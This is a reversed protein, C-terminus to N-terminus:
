NRGLELILNTIIQAAEPKALAQSAKKMKETLKQNYLIQKITQKLIPPHLKKQIIVRAAGEKELFLANKLQHQNTAFPYPVLICPLGRATIESITTAGARSVVLDSAALAYHIRTLYSFIKGKIKIRRLKERVWNYDKEGTILIFQTKEEEKEEQLLYLTDVVIKNLYHAGQSGGLFLLTFKNEELNLKKISQERSSNIVEERVPNGTIVAKKRGGRPLYEVSKPFSLGIRSVFPLLAKNTLSPYVNQECIITPIGFPLALLVVPCSHFSGMGVVVDPKFGWIYKVSQAFSFATQFTFNLWKLSFSRPLPLFNISKFQVGEKGVIEKELEKRGGIWLISTAPVKKKLNRILAVAPYLHGGTGGAVVLIRMKDEKEAGPM